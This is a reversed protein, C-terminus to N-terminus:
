QGNLSLQQFCSATLRYANLFITISLRSCQNEHFFLLDLTSHIRNSHAAIYNSHVSFKVAINIKERYKSLYPQQTEICQYSHAEIKRKTLYSAKHIASRFPKISILLIFRHRKIPIQAQNQERAKNQLARITETVELFTSQFFLSLLPILYQMRM